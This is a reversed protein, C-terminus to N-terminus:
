SEFYAAAVNLAAATVTGPTAPLVGSSAATAGTGMRVAVDNLILNTNNGSLVHRVAATTNSNVWAFWYVGPEITVSSSLTKTKVGTSTTALGGTNTILSTRDANYIGVDGTTGAQM